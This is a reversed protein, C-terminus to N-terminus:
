ILQHKAEVLTPCTSQGERGAAAVAVELVRSGAMGGRVFRTDRKMATRPNSREGLCSLFTITFM